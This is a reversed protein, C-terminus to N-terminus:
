YHLDAYHERLTLNACVGDGHAVEHLRDFAKAVVVQGDMVVYKARVWGLMGSPVASKVHMVHEM